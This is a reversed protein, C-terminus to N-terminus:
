DDPLLDPRERNLWNYFSNGETVFPDTFYDALDQRERFLVRVPKPISVGNDFKGYVWYNKPIGPLDAHLLTRKYWNWVEIVETNDRAYKETMLDGASNIKTFHYFKLPSGNVLIQGDTTIEVMRRSLNWSALNCGPDREIFVRDFLAPVADCWKQDTFIGNPVDDFCAFRLQRAWWEGFQRGVHDNSVAVFGLNYIGYKYSTLENDKMIGIDQNPEVQHPTLIISYDDLRRTIQDLPHFIAIDPDIYIVKKAGQNLLHCVMQGKVATCAEVIDHKFLWSRFREIELSEAFIVEDFEAAAADFQFDEPVADVMLAWFCWDPHAMRLTRVLILARSLYSFTFSTFCHIDHTM